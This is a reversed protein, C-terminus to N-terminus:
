SRDTAEATVVRTEGVALDWLDERDRGAERWAARTRLLPDLLPEGSLVFTGWHMTAMRRAGVDGAARVAEDPDMHVAKMFWRPHYAGVPLMAVDIGPLRQGIEAFFPGYGSDGAHFLRPGDPATVVWGGWLSRCTDFLARRSWHHVPVFDFRLGAVEASEWWDLEVVARFGRRRFWTGLGAPVLVPTTRPLRRLTPADMHDYHNHSIVVADVPPLASWALGPPTIRRPVGPIRASWVPDTLVCAGGLRLAYTAHGVWTVSASGSALDPLAGDRRVPIRDAEATSARFAGERLARLIHRPGPLPATLRDAFSTPWRRTTPTTTMDGAQWGIVM